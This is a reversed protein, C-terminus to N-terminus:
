GGIKTFSHMCKAKVQRNWKVREFEKWVVVKRTKNKLCREMM